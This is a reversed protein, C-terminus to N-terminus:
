REACAFLGRVSRTIAKEHVSIRSRAFGADALAEILETEDFLRHIGNRTFPWNEMTRRHTVYAVLRGGPRLVRRLARLMRGEHDCFYLVNLALVADFSEDPFPLDEIGSRLIRARSGLRRRAAAAMTDSLDIGTARCDARSLVEALAAGTGCGADLIAEGDQPALLDTALLM